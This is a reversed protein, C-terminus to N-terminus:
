SRTGRRGQDLSRIIVTRYADEPRKVFDAFEVGPYIFLSCLLAEDPLAVWAPHRDDNPTDLLTVPKSWTKGEDTSAHDDRLGGTPAVIDAPLGMKHYAEITKPLYRLPTPPSAHWYGPQVRGALRREQASGAFELRCLRRLRPLIPNILAQGSSHRM